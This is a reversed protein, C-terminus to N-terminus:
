TGTDTHGQTDNDYGLVKQGPARPGGCATGAGAAVSREVEVKTPRPLASLEDLWRSDALEPGIFDIFRTMEEKPSQLLSEFRMSLVREQPLTQPKGAIANWEIRRRLYSAAMAARPNM